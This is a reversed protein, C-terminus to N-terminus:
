WSRRRWYRRPPPEYYYDEPYDEAEDLEEDWGEYDDAEESQPAGDTPESHHEVYEDQSPRWRAEYTPPPDALVDRASEVLRDVDVRQPSEVPAPREARARRTRPAEAVARRARIPRPEARPAAEVVRRAARPREAEVVPAGLLPAAPAAEAIDTAEVAAQERGVPIPPPPEIGAQQIERRDTEPVGCVEPPLQACLGTKARAAAESAEGIVIGFVARLGSLEEATPPGAIAISLALVLSVTMAVFVGTGYLWLRVLSLIARV